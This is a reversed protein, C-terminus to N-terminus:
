LIELQNSTVLGNGAYFYEVLYRISMGLVETGAEATAVVAVWHCIVAVVVVNLLTPPLPDGYTIGHYGKFPPGYYGGSRAM